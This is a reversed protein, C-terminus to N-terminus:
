RIDEETRFSRAGAGQRVTVISDSVFEQPDVVIKSKREELEKKVEVYIERLEVQNYSYYKMSRDYRDRSINNVKLVSDIASELLTSYRSVQVYKLQYAGEVISIETIIPVIEKTSILDQPKEVAELVDQQCSAISWLILAGILLLRM